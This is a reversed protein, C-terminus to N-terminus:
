PMAFLRGPTKAHFHQAIPASELFFPEVAEALPKFTMINLCQLQLMGSEPAVSQKNIIHLSHLINPRHLTTYHERSSGMIVGREEQDPPMPGLEYSEPRPPSFDYCTAQHPGSDSHSKSQINPHQPSWDGGDRVSGWIFYFGTIRDREMMFQHWSQTRSGDISRTFNFHSLQQLRKVNIM